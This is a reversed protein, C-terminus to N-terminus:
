VELRYGLKYVTKLRDELGLKQRLRRVHTDVTRDNGDYDYTWVLYLLKERSLAINRHAIFAALLEFEKPTLAVEAGAKTVRKGVLDVSIDDFGFVTQEAMTRRLVANVREILELMEFPKVIYDDAGLRLGTLRDELKAKATLFIVPTDRIEGIVEYGSAGPLMIDLIVLDFPRSSVLEIADLGNYVQECEHGVLTLNRRILDNIAKEDEVILIRAM